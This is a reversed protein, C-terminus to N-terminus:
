WSITYSIYPYVGVLAREKMGDSVRNLASFANIEPGIYYADLEMGIRLDSGENFAFGIAIKGLVGLGLKSVTANEKYTLSYNVMMASFAFGVDFSFLNNRYIHKNAFGIAISPSSILSFPIRTKYDTYLKLEPFDSIATMYKIQMWVINRQYSLSAHILMASYNSGSNIVNTARPDVQSFPIFVMGPGLKMEFSNKLSVVQEPMLQLFPEANARSPGWFIGLLFLAAACLGRVNRYM